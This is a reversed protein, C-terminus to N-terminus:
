FTHSFFIFCSFSRKILINYVSSTPIIRLRSKVYTLPAFTFVTLKIESDQCLNLWFSSWHQCLYIKLCCFVAFYKYVCYQFCETGSDNYFTSRVIVEIFTSELYPITLKTHVCFNIFIKEKKSQFCRFM